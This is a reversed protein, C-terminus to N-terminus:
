GESFYLLQQASGAREVSTRRLLTTLSKSKGKRVPLWYATGLLYSLRYRRGYLHPVVATDPPRTTTGEDIGADVLVGTYVADAIAHAITASVDSDLVFSTVPDPDFERAMYVNREFTQGLQDLLQIGSLPGRVAGHRALYVEALALQVEREVDICAAQVAADIVVGDGLRGDGSGVPLGSAGLARDLLRLTTRPNGDGMELFTPYGAFVASTKRSRREQRSELRGPSLREYWLRMVPLAKRIWASRRAPTLSRRQEETAIGKKQAYAAFRPHRRILSEFLVDEDVREVVPESGARIASREALFPSAGFVVALDSDPIELLEFVQRTLDTSFELLAHMDAQTSALDFHLFEHGSSAFAGNVERLYAGTTSLPTFALKLGFEPGLSRVLQVLEDRVNAPFFEIEDFLLLWRDPLDLFSPVLNEHMRVFLDGLGPPAHKEALPTAATTRGDAVRLLARSIADIARGAAAHLANWSPYPLELQWLSAIDEIRGESGSVSTARGSRVETEIVGLMSQLFHLTIKARHLTRVEPAAEGAVDSLFEQGDLLQSRLVVDSGFYFSLVPRALLDASLPHDWSALAERTLMKMLTTKGSGRPGTLVANDVRSLSEFRKWLVFVRSIQTPSLKNANFYGQGFLSALPSRVSM